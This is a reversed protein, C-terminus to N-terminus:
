KLTIYYTINQHDIFPLSVLVLQVDDVVEADDVQFEYLSKKKAKTCLIKQLCKGHLAVVLNKWFAM